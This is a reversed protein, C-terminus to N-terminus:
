EMESEYLGLCNLKCNPVSDCQRSEFPLYVKGSPLQSQGIPPGGTEDFFYFNHILENKTLNRQEECIVM